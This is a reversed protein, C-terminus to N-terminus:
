AYRFRNPPLAAHTGHFLTRVDLGGAPLLSGGELRHSNLREGIPILTRVGRPLCELGIPVGHPVIPRDDDYGSTNRRKPGLPFGHEGVEFVKRSLDLDIEPLVRKASIQSRM